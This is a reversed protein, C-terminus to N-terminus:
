IRVIGHGSFSIWAETFVSILGIRFPREVLIGGAGQEHFKHWIRILSGDINM